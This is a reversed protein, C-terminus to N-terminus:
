KAPKREKRAQAIEMNIEEPTLDANGNEASIRNAKKVAMEFREETDLSMSFPIGNEQVLRISCMRLYSPFDLGLRECIETADEKISKEVRFQVLANAM